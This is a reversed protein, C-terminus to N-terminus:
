GRTAAEDLLARASEMGPLSGGGTAVRRHYDIQGLHYAFHAILHALLQGTVLRAGGVAEPFEQALRTDAVSRLARDVDDRATAIEAAIESRPVDRAAFERERDRVYPTGGLRAGVFHRLNGVLHLALTGGANPRGPM